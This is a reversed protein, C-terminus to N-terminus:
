PELIQQRIQKAQKDPDEPLLSVIGAPHNSSDIGADCTHIRGNTARTICVAQEDDPTEHGRLAVWM